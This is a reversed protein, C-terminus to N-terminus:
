WMEKPIKELTVWAEHGFRAEYYSQFTVSPLGFDLGTLHKPTRLTVMRAYTLWPGELGAENEDLCLVNSVKERMLGYAVALGCQGGGVVLVDHVRGGGEPARRPAVWERGPWSLIGLDRQVQPPTRKPHPPSPPPTAESILLGIEPPPPPPARPAWM